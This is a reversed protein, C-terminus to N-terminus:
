TGRTILWVVVGTVVAALVGLALRPLWDSRAAAIRLETVATQMSAYSSVIPAFTALQVEAATLRVEHREAQTHLPELRALVADLKGDTSVVKDYIERQTIRVAGDSEHTSDGSM